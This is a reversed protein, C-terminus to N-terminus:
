RPIRFCLRRSDSAPSFVIDLRGCRRRVSKGVSGAALGEEVEVMFDAEAESLLHLPRRRSADGTSWVANLLMQYQWWARGAQRSSVGFRAVLLSYRRFASRLTLLTDASAAQGYYLCRLHDVTLTTDCRDFRARLSDMFYPSAPSKVFRAIKRYDPKLTRPNDQAVAACAMISWLILLAFRKM